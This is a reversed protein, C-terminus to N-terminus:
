ISQEANTKLSAQLILLTNIVSEKRVREGVRDGKGSEWGGGNIQIDMPDMSWKVASWLVKRVNTM